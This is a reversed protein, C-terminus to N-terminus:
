NIALGYEGCTGERVPCVKVEPLCLSPKPQQKPEPTWYVGELQYPGHLHMAGHQNM